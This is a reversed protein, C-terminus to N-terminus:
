VTKLFVAVVAPDFQKGSQTEVERIAERPKRPARYPRSSLMADYSDAVALIRSGLPIKEGKLKDPYGTGDWREHHHKILRIIEQLDDIPGLIKEAVLPHRQIHEMEEELLPNTKELIKESVGLKGIDHLLSAIRINEIDKAPLGQARAIRVAIETVRQGHERSISDKTELVRALSEITKLLSSQIKESQTKVKSELNKQYDLNELVLRRRDLAKAVSLLVTENSFPKTLYDYAGLKMAEVAMDLANVATLMITAMPADGPELDRLKKLLAIGDMGPMRIDIMVLDCPHRPIKELADEASGSAECRYGEASLIDKLLRRIVPEDDVILIRASSPIPTPAEM